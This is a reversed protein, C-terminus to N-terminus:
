LIFNDTVQSLDTTKEPKELLQIKAEQVFIRKSGKLHYKLSRCPHLIIQYKRHNKSQIMKIQFQEV